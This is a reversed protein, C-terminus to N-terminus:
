GWHDKIYEAQETGLMQDTRNGMRVWFDIHKKSNVPATYVPRSSGSVVVECIQRGEVMHFKVKCLSEAPGSIKNGILEYLFLEFGDRNGKSLTKYDEELGAIGGDDAVGILLAGGECNMFGAISKAIIQESKGSHETGHGWRASQKFELYESEGRAIRDEVTVTESRMGRSLRALGEKVVQSILRRRKECFEPYDLHPWDAPLAHWKMQRRLQDEPMSETMKPWYDKPSNDAIVSNDRWDVFAMNAIENVRWGTIGLGNLYAKPFLHHREMSKVPTVRPDLMDKVKQMDSFLVDADLICLAAWYASLAPARASSSELRNPFAIDWYDGTFADRVIRDLLGCFGDADGIKLDRLLRFDWELQTESSRAYRRTTHAMFWWRAIVSRLRKLDVKFDQRGLLWIVYVCMLAIRSTVMRGSRFGAQQLCKLYEHWNTLNLVADQAEALRKFQEERGRESIEGTELDKGRLLSYVIRLRARRFALGVAAKLLQDPDPEIFHNYPSPAGDSAPAKAQRCFDELNKRGEEWFVSMLTLIFDANDLKIGESNIRVFVDAVDEEDVSSDLEIAQFPYNKLDRLRDISDSIRDKEEDDLEVGRYEELGEIFKRVFTHFRGAFVESIDPIFEPNNRVAADTVEFTQDEPRFAINIRKSSYDEHVVPLGKIVAYLSTLRQQGDVILLSPARQKGGPGIPKAGTQSLTSWLLLYGVPFGKYMSDFLDRVQVKKWVFPRQIDPLGIEGHEIRSLLGDLSYSADKFTTVAM